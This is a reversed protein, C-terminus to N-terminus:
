GPRTTHPVDAPASASLPVTERSRRVHRELAILAGVEIMLTGMVADQSPPYDVFSDIFLGFLAACLGLAYPYLEGARDRLADIGAKAVAALFWSLLALAGLGREAAVTLALDHAHEFPLGDESLGYELSVTYFNGAGVGLLPHAAIISPTTKWILLREGGASAGESVTSLRTTVVSIERSHAITNFNVATYVVALAILVLAFRRFPPWFLLVFLSGAFGVVAGRTLTLLLGAISLAAAGLVLPRLSPRCIMGLVLAPSIALLLWFALQAPHTFSGQARDTAVRGGNVLTQSTGHAISELALVAGAFSLCYFIIRIQRIEASAVLMAVALFASWTVWLKIVVFTDRAVLLGLITVLQGLLFAIFAPHPRGLRGVTLFRVLVVGGVLLLIAKTPTLGFSGFSLNLAEAPVCLVAAYVGVMPRYFFYITAGVVLPLGLAVVPSVKYAIATDAAAMAAMALGGAAWAFGHRPLAIRSTARYSAV